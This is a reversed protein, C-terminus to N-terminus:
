SLVGNELLSKALELQDEKSGVEGDLSARLVQHLVLSFQKSPKFGLAKLDNGNIDIKHFQLHTLFSLMVKRADAADAFTMIYLVSEIKLPKLLFFVDSDKVGEAPIFYFRFM